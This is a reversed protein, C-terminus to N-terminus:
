QAHASHHTCSIGNLLAPLAPATATCVHKIGAHTCFTGGATRLQARSGVPTFCGYQLFVHLPQREAVVFPGDLIMGQFVLTEGASLLLLMGRM